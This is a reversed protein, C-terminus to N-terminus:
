RRTLGFPYALRLEKVLRDQLTLNMREVRGKAQATNACIIDVNLEALARGFQTVGKNVGTKGEQTVRFISHKDSYFAVPKGHHRLYSLTATFYDFASETKAFRLEMLRGTADDVYVLLSCEPGREEFWAHPSGDIQILEGLCARRDRPQHPRPVRQKRTLWLGADKMWHRVTERSIRLGHLEALKEAAGEAEYAACMRRVQRENLSMLAAAKVRTLRHELVRKVVELRDIEKTSMAILIQVAAM